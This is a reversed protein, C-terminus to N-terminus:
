HHPVGGAFAGCALAHTHADSILLPISPSKTAQTNICATVAASPLELSLICSALQAYEVCVATGSDPLCECDVEQCM